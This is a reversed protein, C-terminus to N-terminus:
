KQSFYSMKQPKSLVSELEPVKDMQPDVYGEKLIHESRLLQTLEIIKFRAVVLYDQLKEIVHAKMPQREFYENMKCYAELTRPLFDSLLRKFCGINETLAQREPGLGPQVEINPCLEQSEPNIGLKIMDKSYEVFIMESM